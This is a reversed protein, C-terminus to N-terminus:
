LRTEDEDEPERDVGAVAGALDICTRRMHTHQGDQTLGLMSGTKIIEGCGDCPIPIGVNIEYSKLKDTPFSM